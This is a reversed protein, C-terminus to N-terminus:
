YARRRFLSDFMGVVLVMVAPILLILQPAVIILGLYWPVSFAVMAGYLAAISLLVGSRILLLIIGLAVGYVGIWDNLGVFGLGVIFIGYGFVALIGIMQFFRM